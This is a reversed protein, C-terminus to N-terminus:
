ILDVSLCPCLIQKVFIFVFVIIHGFCGEGTEINEQRIRAVRTITSLSSSSPSRSTKEEEILADIKETFPRVSPSTSPVRRSVRSGDLIM